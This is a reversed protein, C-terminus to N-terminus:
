MKVTAQFSIRRLHEMEEVRLSVRKRLQMVGAPDITVDKWRIDTSLSPNLKSSRPDASSCGCRLLLLHLMKTRSIKAAYTRM